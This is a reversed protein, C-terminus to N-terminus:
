GPGVGPRIGYRRLKRAVLTHSTGLHAALKRSSPYLPYLRALLGREFEAVAQDWSGGGLEGGAVRTGALDLDAPDIVPREALTVARFVVNHLQRVNGPWPTALLAASAAASLRCTPRQVQACARELFHRALLLIDEGRERLPPVSLNLVNLRYFLDERFSGEAVMRELDRHTASLVRVDVQLERNGGVRRFRGDNLFRLLKAQLYPSLEGIEDLFITGPSAMELLGPRGSRQAGTFAGPAYGFLESEALSEPLAACNLALFPADRRTSALHCAQAVLEKGTGTEGRVLLPADVAAVRAARAKLARMPASEGVIADFGGASPLGHLARLRAGVRQPSQLTVVGGAARGALRENVPAVDLLFPKGRLTIERVPARFAGEVLEEQLRADGFLEGVAQGRLDPVGAVAAAAANAATVVGQEDLALVPDPMAALLADLHLRRRAGPLLDVQAIEVVGSVRSLAARLEALGPPALEPADVFLHPPEVEVATVNLRRRALVALIEQAIGVRDLFRVDLRM